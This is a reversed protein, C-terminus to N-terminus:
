TLRLVVVVVLGVVLLSIFVAAFIAVDIVAHSVGRPPTPTPPSVVVYPPHEASPQYLSRYRACWDSALTLAWHRAQESPTPAHVRCQGTLGVRAPDVQMKFLEIEAPSVQQWFVCTDCNGGRTRAM